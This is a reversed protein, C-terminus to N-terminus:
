IAIMVPTLKCNIFYFINRPMNNSCNNKIYKADSHFILENKMKVGVRM